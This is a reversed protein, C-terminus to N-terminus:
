MNFFEFSLICNFLNNKQGGGGGGGAGEDANRGMYYGKHCQSLNCNFEEGLCKCILKVM